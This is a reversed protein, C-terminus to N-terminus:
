LVPSHDRHRLLRRFALVDFSYTLNNRDTLRIGRFSREEFGGKSV